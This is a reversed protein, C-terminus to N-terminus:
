ISRKDFSDFRCLPHEVPPGERGKRYSRSEARAIARSVTNSIRRKKTITPRIPNGVSVDINLPVGDDYELYRDDLISQIEDEASISPELSAKNSVVVFIGRGAYAMIYGFIKFVEGIASAVESLAYVYEDPSSRSFIAEIQDIKVAVVQSSQLGAPSLEILHKALSALEVLNEVGEISVENSLDIIQSIDTHPQPSTAPSVSKQQEAIMFNTALLRTSLDFRDVPKSVYDTAGAQLAAELYMREETAALLIIPTKRYTAIKRVCTCFKIAADLHADLDLLVCDFPHVTEALVLLADDVSAASIIEPFRIKVAITAILDQVPPNGSIALIKM